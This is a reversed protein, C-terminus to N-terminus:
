KIKGAKYDAWQARAAERLANNETLMEQINM